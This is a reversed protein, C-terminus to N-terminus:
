FPMAAVAHQGFALRAIWPPSPLARFALLQELLKKTGPTLVGFAIGLIPTLETSSSVTTWAVEGHLALQGTTLKMLLLFPVGVDIHPPISASEIDIGVGGLSIDRIRFGPADPRNEVARVHLPVRPHKRQKDAISFIKQLVEDIGSREDPPEYKIHLIHRGPSSEIVSQVVGLVEVPQGVGGAHLELVFRTGVPLPKGSEIRVGGRGVCKTLEGLLAKPSKYAVKLRVENTTM